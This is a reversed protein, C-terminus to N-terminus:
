HYILFYNSNNKVLAGFTEITMNRTEFGPSSVQFMTCRFNCETTPEIDVFLPKYHV